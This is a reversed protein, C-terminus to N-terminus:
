PKLNASGDGEAVDKVECEVGDYLGGLDVGFDCGGAEVLVVRM